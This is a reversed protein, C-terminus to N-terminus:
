KNKNLEDLLFNAKQLMENTDVIHDDSGKSGYTEDFYIEASSQEHMGIYDSNNEKMVANAYADIIQEKELELAEQKFKMYDELPITVKRVGDTYGYVFYMKDQLQEDLWHVATMQKQKLQERYWKIADKFGYAYENSHHFLMEEIEEDSIETQSSTSATQSSTTSKELLEIREELSQIKDWLTEIQEM